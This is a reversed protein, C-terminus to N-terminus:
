VWEAYIQDYNYTVFLNQSLRERYTCYIQFFPKVLKIKRDM